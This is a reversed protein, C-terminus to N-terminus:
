YLNVNFVQGQTDFLAQEEGDVVFQNEGAKAVYTLRKNDPSFVPIGVGDYPKGEIGDMVLLQNAGYQVNYALHQSDPSFFPSYANPYPDGPIVM